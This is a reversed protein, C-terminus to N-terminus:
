HGLRMLLVSGILMALGLCSVLNLKHGFVLRTAIATGAISLAGWIAYAMVLNIGQVALALLAFAGMIFVISLIGWGKHAFGQSKELALNAIIDLGVSGLVYFLHISM